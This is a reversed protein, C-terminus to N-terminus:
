LHFQIWSLFHKYFYFGPINYGAENEKKDNDDLFTYLYIRKKGKITLLLIALFTKISFDMKKINHQSIILPIIFM